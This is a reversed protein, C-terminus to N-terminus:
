EGPYRLGIQARIEDMVEMVEMTALTDDLPMKPSEIEGARLCRMAEEIEFEFGEGRLPECATETHGGMLNLTYRGWKGADRSYGAAFRLSELEDALEGLAKRGETLTGAALDARVEVDQFFRGDAQVLRVATAQDLQEMREDVLAVRHHHDFVVGVHDRFRVPHELDSGFAAVGATLEHM